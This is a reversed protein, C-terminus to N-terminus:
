SSWPSTGFESAEQSRNVTREGHRVHRPCLAVDEDFSRSHLGNRSLLTAVDRKIRCAIMQGAVREPREVSAARTCEGYIASTRIGPVSLASHNDSQLFAFVVLRKHCRSRYYVVLQLLERRAWDIDVLHNRMESFTSLAITDVSVPACFM